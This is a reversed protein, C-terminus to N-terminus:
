STTTHSMSESSQPVSPAMTLNLAQLQSSHSVLLIPLEYALSEFNEAEERLSDPRPKGGVGITYTCPFAKAYGLFQSMTTSVSSRLLFRLIGFAQAMRLGCLGDRNGVWLRRLLVAMRLVLAM